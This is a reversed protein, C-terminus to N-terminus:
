MLFTGLSLFMGSMTSRALAWSAENRSTSACLSTVANGIPAGSSSYVATQWCGDSTLTQVGFGYEQAAIADTVILGGLNQGVLYGGGDKGAGNLTVGGNGVVFRPVATQNALNKVKLVQLTHMHGAVFLVVGAASSFCDGTTSVNMPCALLNIYDIVENYNGDQGATKAFGAPWQIEADTTLIAGIPRHSTFVSRTGALQLSTAKTQLAVMETKFHAVNTEVADIRAAIMTGPPTTKNAQSTESTLKKCSNSQCTGSSAWGGVEVTDAMALIQGNQGIYEVGDDADTNDFAWVVLNKGAPVNYPKIRNVCFPETLDAPYANHDLFLFFGDGSRDCIEHNGRNFLFPAKQLLVQTPVFFDSAWTAWNNGWPTGPTSKTCDEMSKGSCDRYVYDGVHVVLGPNKGVAAAANLSLPFDNRASGVSNCNQGSQPRCGTDGIYVVTDTKPAPVPLTIGRVTLSTADKPVDAECVVVPFNTRFQVAKASIGTLVGRQTMSVAKTGAMLQSCTSNAEQVTRVSAKWVGAADSGMVVYATYIAPIGDSGTGPLAKASFTGIGVDKNNQAFCPTAAFSLVM